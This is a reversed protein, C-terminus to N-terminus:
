ATKLGTIRISADDIGHHKNIFILVSTLAEAAASNDLSGAHIPRLGTASVLPEVAERDERRDGFILVDGEVPADQALKWAAVNHFASVVRATDGLLHQATRAASGMPPMQVRMVKPPMLPVTTELVIKGAVAERIANLTGDQDAFHVALVVIEGAAAAEANVAGRVGYGITAAAAAAREANRSGIVVEHGAHAWRKALAGGLEGTGGIVAIISM